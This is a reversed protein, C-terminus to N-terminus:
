IGEEQEKIIRSVTTYHLGLFEGIQKMRIVMMKM